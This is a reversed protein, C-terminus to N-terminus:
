WAQFNLDYIGYSELDEMVQVFGVYYCCVQIFM